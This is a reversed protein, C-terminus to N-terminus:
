NQSIFIQVNGFCGLSEKQPLNIRRLDLLDVGIENAVQSALALMVIREQTKFNQLFRKLIMLSFYLKLALDISYCPLM